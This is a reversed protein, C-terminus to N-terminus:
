ESGGQALAARSLCGLQIHEQLSGCRCWYDGFALGRVREDSGGQALSARYPNRHFQCGSFGKVYPCYNDHARSWGRARASRTAEAVLPKVADALVPMLAADVFQRADSLYFDTIVTIDDAYRHMLEAIDAVLQERHEGLLREFDTM